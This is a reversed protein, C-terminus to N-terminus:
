QRTAKLNVLAEADKLIRRCVDREGKLCWLDYPGAQGELVYDTWAKAFRPDEEFWQLLDVRLTGIGMCPVFTTDQCRDVLVPNPHWRAFDALIADRTVRALNRITALAPQGDRDHEANVIAPLMWLCMFRSGWEWGRDLVQEFVAEAATSLILVTSGRPVDESMARQVAIRDDTYNGHSARALQLPHCLAVAAVFALSAGVAAPRLAIPQMRPAAWLLWCDIVIVGFLLDFFALAPVLHSEHAKFQAVHGITTGIAALLLVIAFTRHPLRRRLALWLLAVLAMKLGRMPLVLESLEARHYDHYTSLLLPLIKFVYDPAWLLIAVPYALGTTVMAAMEPRVMTRLDRTRALLLAEIALVVVLNHPKLLFGLAALLGAMLGGATSPSVAEIRGAAMILYPLVFLLMIHERQGYYVWPHIVTAYLLVPVLWCAFRAGGIRRVLATSWAIMVVALVVLCGQLAVQLSIGLSRGLAVPLSSLWVILPPNAEVLDEFAFSGLDMTRRAAFLLWTQDGWQPRLMLYVFGMGAAAGAILPFAYSVGLGVWNHDFSRPSPTADHAM